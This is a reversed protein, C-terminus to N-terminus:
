RNACVLSMYMNFFYSEFVNYKFPAGHGGTNQEDM